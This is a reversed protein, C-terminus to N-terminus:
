GRRRDALRRAWARLADVHDPGIGSAPETAVLLTPASRGAAWRHCEANLGDDVWALPRAGAHAEIAELKWHGRGGEAPGDFRLYPLPGPLGLLPPLYENAKEEWGSCWVAEFDDGLALLHEGASASILHPVGDVSLFTGPPQADLDFRFLSIVGDVDIFLLPKAVIQQAKLL